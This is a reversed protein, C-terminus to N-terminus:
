VRGPGLAAAADPEDLREFARTTLNVALGQYDRSLQDWGREVYEDAEYLALRRIREGGVAQVFAIAIPDSLEGCITETVGARSLRVPTTQCALTLARRVVGFPPLTAARGALAVIEGPGPRWREGRRVYVRIAEMVEDGTLGDLLWRYANASRAPFDGPFAELATACVAWDRDTM